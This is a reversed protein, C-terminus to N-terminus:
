HNGLELCLKLYDLVLPYVDFSQDAAAMRENGEGLLGRPEPYRRELVKVLNLSFEVTGSNANNGSTKVTKGDKITASSREQKLKDIAKQQIDPVTNEQWVAELDELCAKKGQGGSDGLVQEWIYEKHQFIAPNHIAGRAVLVGSAGTFNLFKIIDLPSFM